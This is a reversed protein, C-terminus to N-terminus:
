ISSVYSYKRATPPRPIYYAGDKNIQTPVVIVVGVPKSDADFFGIVQRTAATKLGITWDFAIDQIRADPVRYTPPDHLTNYDRNNITINKDKGYGIDYRNYLEKLQNRV